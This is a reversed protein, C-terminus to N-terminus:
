WRASAFRDRQEALAAEDPPVTLPMARYETDTATAVAPVTADAWNADARGDLEARYEENVAILEDLAARAARLGEIADSIRTREREMVEMSHAAVPSSPRTTAICDVIERITRSSIGAAFLAQILAVRRVQDEDYHRQNSTSRTSDLLGQEEYYRLSRPGVGTRTSLEGIRM